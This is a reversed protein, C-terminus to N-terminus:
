PNCRRCDAPEAFKRDQRSVAERQPCAPCGWIEQRYISTPALCGACLLGPEREVVWYGPLGCAPCSSQLRQLLDVAAEAIRGMRGPNAFARLDTEVFVKGNASKSRCDEFGQRLREWDFVGKVMRPDDQRNPRLVLHQAPFGEQRAFTELTTWADTLLHGNTSPGEAIAMVEIGLRDDLLVLLELNWPVLGVMPDLGFSGESALGVPLGSLEMGIRAKRRAADLQSGFRPTDRTFTGLQDTDFGSIREVKCALAPELVPAIVQEKGHQTLLAIRQGRYHNADNM